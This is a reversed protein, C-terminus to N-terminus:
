KHVLEDIIAEQAGKLSATFEKIELEDYITKFIVCAAQFIDARSDGVYPSELMTVFDMKQIEAIQEDIVSTNEKEGDVAYRNYVGSNRVMSVLRLPTSSTAICECHQRLEAFHSNQLFEDTYKKIEARLNAANQANYELIEFAEAANRAGWPISITYMIQPTSTNTALTIETSGGGLDYVLIYKASADANLRAGRVNLVAEEVADIVQLKIGTLEEVAKVFDDGNHAMRCSATAIAKYEKVDYEKMVNAYEALCKLGREIAEHTFKGVAHLGLGLMTATSKRFLVTGKTDAIMLRCSNTGLDIAAVNGESM